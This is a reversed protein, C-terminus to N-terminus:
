KTSITYKCGLEKFAADIKSILLKLQEFTPPVTWEFFFDHDGLTWGSKSIIKECHVRAEDDSINYLESIVQPLPLATGGLADYFCVEPIEKSVEVAIRELAQLAELIPPGYIKVYTKM